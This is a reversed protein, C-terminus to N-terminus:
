DGRRSLLVGKMAFSSSYALLYWVIRM